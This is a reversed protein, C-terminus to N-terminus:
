TRASETFDTILGAGKLAKSIYRLLEFQTLWKRSINKRRSFDKRVLPKLAECDNMCPHDDAEGRDKKKMNGPDKVTLQTKGRLSGFTISM